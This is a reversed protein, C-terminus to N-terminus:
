EDENVEDEITVCIKTRLKVTDTDHHFDTNMEDIDITLEKTIDKTISICYFCDGIGRRHKYLCKERNERFLTQSVTTEVEYEFLKM